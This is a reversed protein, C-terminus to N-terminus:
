WIQCFQGHTYNLNFSSKDAASEEAPASFTLKKIEKGLENYTLFSIPVQFLLFNQKGPIFM